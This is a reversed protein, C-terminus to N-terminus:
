SYRRRLLYNINQKVGSRLKPVGKKWYKKPISSRIEIDTMNYIIFQNFHSMHYPSEGQKLQKIIASKKRDVDEDILRKIIRGNHHDVVKFNYKDPNKHYNQIKQVIDMKDYIKRQEESIHEFLQERTMESVDISSEETANDSVIGKLPSEPETLLEERHVRGNISLGRIIRTGDEEIGLEVNPYIKSLKTLCKTVDCKRIYKEGRVRSAYYDFFEDLSIYYIDRFTCRKQILNHVGLEKKSLSKILESKKREFEEYDHIYQPIEESYGLHYQVASKIKDRKEDSVAGLYRTLYEKHVSHIAYPLIKGNRYGNINIDIGVRNSSSTIALVNVTYVDFPVPNTDLVYVPRSVIFDHNLNDNNYDKKSNTRNEYYYIAGESFLNADM